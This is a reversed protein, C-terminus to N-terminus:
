DSSGNAEAMVRMVGAGNSTYVLETNREYREGM